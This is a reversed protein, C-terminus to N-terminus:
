GDLARPLKKIGRDSQVRWLWGLLLLAGGLVLIVFNGSAGGGSEPLLGGTGSEPTSTEDIPIPTFASVRRVVATPTPTPVDTPITLSERYPLWAATARRVPELQAGLVCCLCSLLLATLLIGLPFGRKRGGTLRGHGRGPIKKGCFLCLDAKGSVKRGCKKCAVEGM